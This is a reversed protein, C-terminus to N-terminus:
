DVHEDKEHLILIPINMTEALAKTHSKHFISELFSYEGPLIALWDMANDKCFDHIAQNVITQHRFHYHPKAPAMMDKFDESFERIDIYAIDGQANFIHLETELLNCVDVIKQLSAESGSQKPDAAFCIKKPGKYTANEPVALVSSHLNHAADNLTSFFWSTNDAPNSNGMVILWPKGSSKATKEITDILEGYAVIGQMSIDVHTHRLKGELESMRKEADKQTDDILTAPLALDNVMVPFTFCHLILLEMGKEYALAAGYKVANESVPSFDTAVLIYSM